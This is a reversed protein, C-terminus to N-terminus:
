VFVKEYQKLIVDMGYRQKTNELISRSDYKYNMFQTLGNEFANINEFDCAVGNVNEIIIENIGGPCNNAFVPKGLALAELVINPFGEYRSSLLLADSYQIYVIPNIKFGLLQVYDSVNLDVIMKKIEEDKPGKGLILLKFNLRDKMEAMRKIIIDYGKQSDLRGAAVFTFMRKDKLEEPCPGNAKMNIEDVKVPNNILIMKTLDCGWNNVLDNRMDISQAIINDFRHYAKKNLFTVLKNDGAHFLSPIITDRFIVRIGYKHMYNTFFGLWLLQTYGFLCYDPKIAVIRKVIKCMSYRIRTKLDLLYTDVGDEIFSNFDSEERHFILLKVKVRGSKTLENVLYTLFRGTGDQGIHDTVVLITKM